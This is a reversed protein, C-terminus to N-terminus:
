LRWILKLSLELDDGDLEAPVEIGNLSFSLWDEQSYETFRLEGQM